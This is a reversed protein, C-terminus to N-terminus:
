LEIREVMDSKIWGQTGDDLTVEYWENITEDTITLHTGEHIVTTEAAKMEPTKRVPCVDKVVVAGDNATLRNYQTLACINSLVFVLFCIIAGYFGLQRLIVVDSFLYVLTLLVVLILAMVALTTWANTNLMNVVANIGVMVFSEHRPQMKDITQSRAVALNHAIDKDAPLLLAAKNYAIVAKTINDQRYYANGLNYFMEASPNKKVIREYERIAQQYNGKAYAADATAKADMAAHADNAIGTMLLLLAILLVSNVTGKRRNKKMGKLYDDIETIGKMAKEYVTTMKGKSEGPAYRAYECEDIASVFVDIIEENVNHSLLRERINERSLESVPINMKDGVYGWLARLVEDYFAEQKHQKMLRAALKLRKAAVKNAKKGKMGVIDAHEIARKRFVWILLAFAALIVLIVINYGATGFYIDNKSTRADDTMLGRIDQEKESFDAVTNSGGEGPTVHLTLQKTKVTKYANAKTDYYTLEVSPITYDGQHRPVFLFDYIMNGELGNATLRTKDTSKPEYKDFDKPFAVEPQKLLKLNGVGSVVVRLTVPDNAAVTEKNLSGSISFQGVGGSFGAPRQPLADVQISVAPAIIDKKVEVYGSGGNFFAEFPDVNRNEQVVIGKYTISPIELKGTMQPYMVYQKWTVCRYPKGKYNELHFSKQDPLPIELTHFGKLDPMEGQLQTLEVQTYVKYTLLIPEQEHVRHKNATVTIFLDNGSIHSGAERVQAAQQQAHSMGSQSSSSGSGSANGSVKIKVASSTANKGNVIAHAPPIVYTGAKEASVIYTYTISSSSSTHGNVMQFSSQSSTSPGMLVELGDPINGARFGKVDQTAVTYRLRFQEGTVVQQPASVQIVQALVAACTTVLLMLSIIRKSYM